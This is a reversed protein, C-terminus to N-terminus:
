HRIVRRPDPFLDDLEICRSLEFDAAMKSKRNREEEEKEREADIQLRRKYRAQQRCENILYNEYAAQVMREVQGLTYRDRQLSRVYKDTVFYPIDKVKVLRTAMPNVFPVKQQLANCTVPLSRYTFILPCCDVSLLPLYCLCCVCNTLLMSKQM